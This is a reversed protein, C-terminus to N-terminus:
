YKILLKNYINDALDSYKNKLRRYKLIDEKNTSNEELSGYYRVMMEADKLQEELNM